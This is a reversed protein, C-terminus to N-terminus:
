HVLENCRRELLERLYLPAAFSTGYVEEIKGVKNYAKLDGKRYIFNNGTNSKVTKSYTGVTTINPYINYYAPYRRHKKVDVGDNGAAVIIPINLKSMEKFINEEEKIYPKGSLSINVYDNYKIKRLCDLYNNYNCVNIKIEDCLEKNNDDLDGYIITSVVSTGHGIKDPITNNLHKNLQTIPNTGTDIVLVNIDKAWVLTLLLLIM